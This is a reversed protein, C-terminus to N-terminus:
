ERVTPEVRISMWLVVKNWQYLVFPRNQRIHGANRNLFFKTLVPIWDLLDTPHLNQNVDARGLIICTIFNLISLCSFFKFFQCFIKKFNDISLLNMKSDRALSKFRTAKPSCLPDLEIACRKKSSAIFLFLSTSIFVTAGYILSNSSPNFLSISESFASM